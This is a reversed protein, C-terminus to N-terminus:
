LTGGYCIYSSYYKFGVKEAAKHMYEEDDIFFIAQKIEPNYNLCKDLSYSLLGERNEENDYQKSIYTGFVVAINGRGLKIFIGGEIYEDPKFAFIYWEDFKERIRNSTWYIGDFNKDHFPAYLNFNDETIRFINDTEEVPKFDNRMFRMDTSSEICEFGNSLFYDEAETNEKTFGFFEEYGKYDRKLIAMLENMVEAYDCSIYLSSTQLYKDSEIFLFNVIGILSGEKYYGLLRSDERTLSRRFEDEIQERRMPLPYSAKEPRKSLEWSFDVAEKIDKEEIKRFM